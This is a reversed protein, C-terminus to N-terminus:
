GLCEELVDKLLGELLDLKYAAMPLPNAGARAEAAAREITEASAKAGVLAKEAGELRLPVPAIGGAALRAMEFRDDAVVVRIVVEVLPWEAYSRSIARRYASREGKVPPPLQIATIVEGPQLANDSTGQSGDGMLDAMSIRRRRDTSVTAEYAVLAAALSSPHPAVCPGLDFAVGYLHNGGRSPCDSGGKKLCGIGPNRFYWCRTKQALNGGATALHRIQPTALGNATAALGAYGAALRPDSAIEAVTVSAGIRAAGAKSWAVRRMAATPSLDDVPGTSVGSRRREGLDTAGARWEIEASM